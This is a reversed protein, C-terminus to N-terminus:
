SFKRWLDILVVVVLGVIAGGGILVEPWTHGGDEVERDNSIRPLVCAHQLPKRMERRLRRTALALKLNLLTM